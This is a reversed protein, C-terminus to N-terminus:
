RVLVEGVQRGLGAGQVVADMLGALPFSLRAPLTLSRLDRRDSVSGARWVFPVVMCGLRVRLLSANSFAQRTMGPPTLLGARAKPATPPWGGNMARPSPGYRTSM